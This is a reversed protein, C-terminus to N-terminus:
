CPINAGLAPRMFCRKLHSKKRKRGMKSQKRM